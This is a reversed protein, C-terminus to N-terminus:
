LHTYRVQVLGCREGIRLACHLYLCGACLSKTQQGVATSHSNVATHYLGERLAPLPPLESLGRDPPVLLYKWRVKSQSRTQLHHAGSYPPLVTQADSLLLEGFCMKLKWGAGTIQSWTGKLVASERVGESFLRCALLVLVQYLGSGLLCWRSPLLFCGFLPAQSSLQGSLCYWLRMCVGSAWESQFSPLLKWYLSFLEPTDPSKM